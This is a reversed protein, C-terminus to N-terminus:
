AHFPSPTGNLALHLSDKVSNRSGVGIVSNSHLRYARDDCIMPDWQQPITVGSLTNCGKKVRTSVHLPRTNGTIDDGWQCNNAFMDNSNHGTPVPPSQTKAVSIPQYFDVCGSGSALKRVNSMQYSFINLSNKASQHKSHNSSM